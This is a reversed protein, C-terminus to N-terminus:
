REWIYEVLFPRLPMTWPGGRRAPMYVCGRGLVVESVGDLHDAGDEDGGEHTVVNGTGPGSCVGDDVIGKKDTDPPHKGKQVEQGSGEDVLEADGDDVNSQIGQADDKAEAGGNCKGRVNAGV